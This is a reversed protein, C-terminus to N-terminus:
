SGRTGRGEALLAARAARLKELQGDLGAETEALERRLEELSDGTITLELAGAEDAGARARRLRGVHGASSPARAPAAEGAAIERRLREDRAELATLPAPAGGPGGGSVADLVEGALEAARALFDLLGSRAVSAELRDLANGLREFAAGASNSATEVEPGFTKRLEAALKPLLDEALVEGRELMKGLEATTVGMARAAIQFAGPLREGLQGRLEEAQVTGKSIIQQLATLVGGTDDASLGMVRSAEAVAVFIDRAAKGELATGRAAAAFGSYSHAASRFDIGLRETEASLFEIEARAARASGTAARFRSDLAELEVGSRRVREIVAAAGIGLIAAKVGGIRRTLAGARTSLREWARSLGRSKARASSTPACGCRWSWIM